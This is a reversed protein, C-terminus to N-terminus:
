KSPLTDFLFNGNISIICHTTDVFGTKGNAMTLTFEKKTTICSFFIQILLLFLARYVM